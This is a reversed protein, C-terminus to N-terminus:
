SKHIYYLPSPCLQSLYPLRRLPKKKGTSSHHVAAMYLISLMIITNHTKYSL